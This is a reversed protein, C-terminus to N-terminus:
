PGMVIGEVMGKVDLGNAAGDCNVDATLAHYPSQPMGLLAAVFPEIDEMDAAGDGNVDGRAESECPVVTRIRQRGAADPVGDGDNDFEVVLEVPAFTEHALITVGVGVKIPVGIPLAIVRLVPEGPPLGDLSVAELDAVEGGAGDPIVARITYELVGNDDVENLLNLTYTRETGVRQTATTPNQWWDGCWRSSASVTNTCGFTAGTANNTVSLQYCGTLYPPPNPLGVPRPLNVCVNVCQGAPIMATVGASPSFNMAGINSCGAGGIPGSLNWTYSQPAGTYNCIQFCVQKSVDGRCYLVSNTYCVERCKGFQGATYLDVIENNGLSRRFFEFEDLVGNLFLNGALIPLRQGFVLASTNNVSGIIANDNFSQSVGDVFLRIVNASGTGGSGNRYVVAAVHHCQGDNIFPLGTAIFNGFVGSALQFALRGNFSFLTYGYVNSGGDTTRKDVFPELGGGTTRIWGEITFNGLGFNIDATGPVNPVTVVGNVGNFALAGSSSCSAAGAPTVGGSPTGHNMIGAIDDIPPLVPNDDMPWWDAMNAPPHKCDCSCRYRVKGYEAPPIPPDYYRVLNCLGSNSCGGSCRVAGNVLVPHCPPDVPPYCDCDSVQYHGSGAPYETIEIPTCVEGNPCHGACTPICSGPQDPNCYSTLNCAPPPTECDCWYRVSGDSNQSTQIECTQGVVPCSFVCIPGAPGMEVHCFEPGCECRTIRYVGDAGLTIEKPQCLTGGDPCANICTMGQPDPQCAPPNMAVPCTIEVDGLQLKDGTTTDQDLDVMISQNTLPSGGNAKEGLIGYVAIDVGPDPPLKIADATCWVQVRNNATNPTDYDYDTGGAASDTLGNIVSGTLFINGSASWGGGGAPNPPSYCFQLLRSQHAGTYFDPGWSNVGWTYMTREAVVMCCPASPANQATFSIDSVPSSWPDPQTQYVPLLLELQETGAIPRGINPGSAALGVSWIENSTLPDATGTDERWVSYYLRRTYNPGGGAPDAHTQVAWVRQGRQTIPHAGLPVAGNPDPPPSGALVIGTAHNWTSLVSAGPSIQYIRGDEFNSVYFSQLNCDFTLNGLGPWCETGTCGSFLANPLTIWHAAVGTNTDIKYIAGAAGGPVTGIADTGPGMTSFIATHALYINGLDDLTVGFVTGLDTKLWKQAASPAYFNTFWNDAVTAGAQGSINMVSLVPTATSTFYDFGEQTAVAVTGPFTGAPLFNPKKGCCTDCAPPPCASGACQITFTGAAPATGPKTGIRILYQQGCVVECDLYTQVGCPPANPPFPPPAISDDICCLPPASPPLGPCTCGNTYFAIKTDATTQGCTHIQILGTCTATWCFWVDHEFALQGPQGCWADQGEASTTATTLDFPFVGTGSISTPSTCQDGAQTTSVMLLMAATMGWVSINRRMSKMRFLIRDSLM